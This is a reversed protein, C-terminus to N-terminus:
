WSASRGAPGQRHLSAVARDLKRLKATYAPANSTTSRRTARTPVTSRAPQDRRRRDRRQAPGAVLAPRIASADLAIGDSLTLVPADTGAGEIAEDLWEDVDGGSRVILDADALAQVDRPRVEYEHPDANPALLQVVEVQTGGVNRALDAVQTTTAVVTVRDGVGAAKDDEGCGALSPSSLRSCSALRASRVTRATSFSMRTKM